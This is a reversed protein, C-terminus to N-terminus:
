SILYFNMQQKSGHYCWFLWDVLEILSSKFSPDLRHTIDQLCDLNTVYPFKKEAEELPELLKMWTFDNVRFRRFAVRVKSDQRVFSHIKDQIVLIM